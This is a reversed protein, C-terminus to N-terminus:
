YPRSYGEVGSLNPNDDQRGSPIIEDPIYRTNTPSAFKVFGKEFILTQYGVYYM